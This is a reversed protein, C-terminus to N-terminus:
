KVFCPFSTYFIGILALYSFFSLFLVLKKLCLSFKYFGLSRIEVFYRSFSLVQPPAEAHAKPLWIHFPFLPMKIAFGYLIRFFFNNYLWHSLFTELFFFETTGTILYVILYYSFFFSFRLFYVFFILPLVLKKYDRGFVLVILFYSNVDNWFLIFCGYLNALFFGELSTIFYIVCIFNKINFFITEGTLVCIIVSVRIINFVSHLM